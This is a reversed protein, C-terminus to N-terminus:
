MLKLLQINPRRNPIEVQHYASKLDLTSFHSYQAVKNVLNQMNPLPYGDLLAYKNITERYDTCMRKKHNDGTVVLVQARWPFSSSEIIGEKLDNKIPEAILKKNVLSHKRSKTIISKCDSELHEFLQPVVNTKIYKLM